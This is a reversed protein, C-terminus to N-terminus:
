FAPASDCAIDAVCGTSYYMVSNIGSWQQFLQALVLTWLSRKVAADRSRLVEPLSLSAEDQARAMNRSPQEDAEGDLARAQDGALPATEEDEASVDFVDGSKTQARTEVMMPSTLIQTLAIVVSAM